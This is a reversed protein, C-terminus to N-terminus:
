DRDMLRALLYGVGFAAAVSLLPNRAVTREAEAFYEQAQGRAHDAYDRLVAAGQEGRAVAVERLTGSLSALDRRLSDLDAKLRDMDRHAQAEAAAERAGAAEQRLDEALRPQAEPPGDHPLDGAAAASISTDSM